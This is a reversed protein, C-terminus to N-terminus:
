LGAWGRSTCVIPIVSNNGSVHRNTDCHRVPTVNASTVPIRSQGTKAAIVRTCLQMQM